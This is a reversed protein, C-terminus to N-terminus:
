MPNSAEPKTADSEPQQAAPAEKDATSKPAVKPPPVDEKYPHEKSVFQVGKNQLHKQFGIDPDNILAKVKEAQAKVDNGNADKRIEGHENSEYIVSGKCILKKEALWANFLKDMVEAMAGTLPKGGSSYGRLLDSLRSVAFDMKIDGKVVSALTQLAHKEINHQLNEFDTRIRHSGSWPDSSSGLQFGVNKKFEEATAIVKEFEEHQDKGAMQQMRKLLVVIYAAGEHTAAGVSFCKALESPLVVIKSKAM